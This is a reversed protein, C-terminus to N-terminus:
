RMPGPRPPTTLLARPRRPSPPRELQAESLHIAGYGSPMEELLAAESRASSAATSPESETAAGEATAARQKSLYQNMFFDASDFRQVKTATANRLIRRACAESMEAKPLAAPGRPVPRSVAERESGSSREHGM